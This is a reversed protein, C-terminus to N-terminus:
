FRGTRICYAEVNQAAKKLLEEVNEGRERLWDLASQWGKEKAEKSFMSGEAGPNDPAVRCPIGAESPKEAALDSDADPVGPASSEFWDHVNGAYEGNALARHAAPHLVKLAEMICGSPGRPDVRYNPYIYLAFVLREAARELAEKRMTDSHCYDCMVVGDIVNENGRVGGKSGKCVQCNDKLDERLVKRELGTHVKLCYACIVSALAPRPPGCLVETGGLRSRGCLTFEAREDPQLHVKRKGM